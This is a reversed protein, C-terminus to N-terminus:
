INLVDLIKKTLKGKRLVLVTNNELKILTSSNNDTKYNNLNLLTVDEDKLFHKIEKLTNLPQKGEANVSTSPLPFPLMSLIKQCLKNKPM